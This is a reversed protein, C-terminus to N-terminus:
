YTWTSRIESPIKRSRVVALFVVEGGGRCEERGPDRAQASGSEVPGGVELAGICRALEYMRRGAELELLSRVARGARRRLRCNIEAYFRGYIELFGGRNNRM